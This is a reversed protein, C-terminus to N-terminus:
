KQPRDEPERDETKRDPEEDFELDVASAAASEVAQWWARSEKDSTNRVLKGAM